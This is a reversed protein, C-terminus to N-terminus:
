YRIRSEICRHHMCNATSNCRANFRRVDAEPAADEEDREKSDAIQIIVPNIPFYQELLFCRKAFKVFQSHYVTKPKRM